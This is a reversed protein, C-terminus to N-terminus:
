VQISVPVLLEPMAVTRLGFSHMLNVAATTPESSTVVALDEISLSLSKEPLNNSMQQLLGRTRIAIAEAPDIWDVPWPALKRMQNALFPYHTCGLIVIDTRRNCLTVFCPHLENLLRSEDYKQRLLYDEAVKALGQAGVLKVDITSAFQNILKKTYERNITGPTGLLTVLGSVTREAAPKIAPVTGVFPIRFRDRLAPMILTSATNCAIIAIDPQFRDMLNDFIGIIRETLSEEEWNGYPFGADDGVYIIREGPIVLRLERLISLGGVGSDFLLVSM